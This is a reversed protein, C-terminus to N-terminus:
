GKKKIFKSGLAFLLKTYSYSVYTRYDIHKFYDRGNKSYMYMWDEPAKMGKKIANYFALESDRTQLNAFISTEDNDIINKSSNQIRHM